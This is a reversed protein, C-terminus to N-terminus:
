SNNKKREDVLQQQQQQQPCITHKRSKTQFSKHNNYQRLRNTLPPTPKTTTNWLQGDNKSNHRYYAIKIKIKFMFSSPHGTINSIMKSTRAYTHTRTHTQKIVDIRLFVIWWLM